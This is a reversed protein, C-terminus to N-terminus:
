DRRRPSGRETKRDKRYTHKHSRSYDKSNLTDGLLGHTYGVNSHLVGSLPGSLTAKEKFCFNYMEKFADTHDVENLYEDSDHGKADNEAAEEEEEKDVWRKNNIFDLLFNDGDKLNGMPDAVGFLRKEGREGEREVKAQELNEMEICVVTDANEDDNVVGQASFGKGNKVM